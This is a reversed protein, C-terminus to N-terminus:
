KERKRSGTTLYAVAFVSLASPSPFILEDGLGINFKGSAEIWSLISDLAEKGFIALIAVGILTYILMQKNLKKLKKEKAQNSKNCKHLDERLKQVERDKCNPCDQKNM